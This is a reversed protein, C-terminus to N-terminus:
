QELNSYAKERENLFLCRKIRAHLAVLEPQTFKQSLEIEGGLSRETLALPCLETMKDVLVRLPDDSTIKRAAASALQTLQYYGPWKM